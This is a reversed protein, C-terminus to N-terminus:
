SVEILDVDHAFGEEATCDFSAVLQFCASEALVLLNQEFGINM